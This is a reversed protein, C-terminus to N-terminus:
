SDKGPPVYFIYYTYDQLPGPIELRLSWKDFIKEAIFMNGERIRRLEHEAKLGAEGMKVDVHCNSIDYREPFDIRFRFETTPYAINWECAECVPEKYKYTGRSIREM